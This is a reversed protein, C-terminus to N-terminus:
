SKKMGSLSMGVVGAIILLTCVIHYWMLPEGLVIVGAVISIATSVNGFITAKVAEMKSLMYSMLYASLLICGVGLYAGSIFVSPKALPMFYDALSDGKVIGAVLAAINFAVTGLIIITFTIEMPQYDNRAYRMFVNSLAMALSSLVLLVTGLPDITVDTAGMIIMVLLALVTLCIFVTELWTSKENLFISAIIKVAIPIVAFIIAGEESTSFLLGVVQLAMFGVYFAATLMLKGKPKHKIDVKILRCAVLVMVVIFAFDYRYCLVKISDANMQCIKVALFSFGVLVSFFIAAIYGKKLDNRRQLEQESEKIETKEHLM